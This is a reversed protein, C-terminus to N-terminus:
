LPPFQPVSANLTTGLIVRRPFPLALGLVQTQRSQLSIDKPACTRSRAKILTECLGVCCKARERSDTENVM